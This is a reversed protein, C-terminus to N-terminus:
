TAYDDTWEATIGETGTIKRFLSCSSDHGSIIHHRAVADDDNLIRYASQM